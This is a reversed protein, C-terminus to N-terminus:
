RASKPDPATGETAQVAGWKFNYQAPFGAEMCAYNLGTYSADGALIDASNSDLVFNFIWGSGTLDSPGFIPLPSMQPPRGPAEVTCTAGTSGYTVSAVTGQLHTSDVIGFGADFVVVNTLPPNLIGDVMSGSGSWGFTENIGPGSGSAAYAATSDKSELAGGVADSPPFHIQTRVKRIDMRFHLNFDSQLKLSGNGVITFQFPGRWETLRAVNSKYGRAVVQVDGAAGDGSLALDVVITNPDWSEINAEKGGVLVSGAGGTARPDTGFIGSIALRGSPLGTEDVGMNFISPALLGFSSGSGKPTRNFDLELGFHKSTVLSFKGLGHWAFETNVVQGYDFPRQPFVPASAPGAVCSQVNSPNTEPCFQNAGLLRDFVLRATKAAFPDGTPANWGAYVSANKDFIATKFDTANDSNCADIYVLSNGSFSSWYKEVFSASIAWHWEYVGNASEALMPVLPSPASFQFDGSKLYEATTEFDSEDITWLIYQYPDSATGAGLSVGHARFIFIGDGGVTKLNAVTPLSLVPEYNQANLWATLDPELNTDVGTLQDVSSLFRFKPSSPMETGGTGGSQKPRTAMEAKPVPTRRSPSIQAGAQRSAQASLPEPVAFFDNAIAVPFGDAFRAWVSSADPYMGSSVFEPRSQIFALLTQADTVSDLHPLSAFEARLADLSVWRALDAATAGSATLVPLIRNVAFGLTSSASIYTGRVTLLYNRGLILASGDFTLVLQKAAGVAINGLALPVAPTSPNATGLTVSNVAVNGATATGLNALPLLIVFSGNTVGSEPPQTSIAPQARLAAMSILLVAAYKGARRARSRILLLAAVGIAALPRFGPEPVATATLSVTFTEVRSLDSLSNELQVSIPFSSGPLAAGLELDFLSVQGSTTGNPILFDTSIGLDQVPTIVSPDFGFFNFFFDSAHLDQGSNNTVTGDVTVTEGSSASFTTAVPEFSIVDARTVAASVMVWFLLVSRQLWGTLM